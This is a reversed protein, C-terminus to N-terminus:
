WLFLHILFVDLFNDPLTWVLSFCFSKKALLTSAICTFLVQHFCNLRSPNTKGEAHNAPLYHKWNHRDNQWREGKKKLNLLPSKAVQESDDVPLRATGRRGFPKRTEKMSGIQLQVYEANLKLSVSRLCVCISLENLHFLSTLKILWFNYHFSVARAGCESEILTYKATHKM